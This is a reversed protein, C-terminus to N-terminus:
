AVPGSSYSGPSGCCFGGGGCCLNCALSWLCMKLCFGDGGYSPRGYQRSRQEYWNGGNEIIELLMRYNQNDPELSVARKADDMAAMKNGLGNHVQASYFYWRGTRNEMGDLVNRAEKYYGNQIYGVAARLYSDSENYVSQFGGFGGSFGGFMNFFEEFPDGQSQGYSGANGSTQNYRGGDGRNGQSGGYSAGSTRQKMIMQYAQQVNKFMEEAQAKNPNNLNADPHYKKSLQKYAKKIEEDTAAPSVGLVKYPDM